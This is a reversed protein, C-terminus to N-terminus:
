ALELKTSYNKIMQYAGFLVGAYFLNGALTNWFFPLGAAYCTMLGGFSQAYLGSSLWTGFNTLLFFITSAIVSSGIVNGITVKKLLTM